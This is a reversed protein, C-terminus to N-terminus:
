CPAGPTGVAASKSPGRGPQANRRVQQWKAAAQTPGLYQTIVSSVDVSADAPEAPVYDSAKVLVADEGGLPPEQPSAPTDILASCMSTLMNRDSPPAPSDVTRLSSGDRSRYVPFPASWAM